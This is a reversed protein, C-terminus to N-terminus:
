KVCMCWVCLRVTFVTDVAESKVTHRTSDPPSPRTLQKNLCSVQCKLPGPDREGAATGTAAGCRAREFGVVDVLGMTTQAM